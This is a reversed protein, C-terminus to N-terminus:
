ASLRRIRLIIGQSDLKNPFSDFSFEKSRSIDDMQGRDSKGRPFIGTAGARLWPSALDILKPLPAFARATMAEIPQLDVVSLSEIRLCHLSAPAGTARAAERLFACKRQDSEVLHVQAGPTEALQIAIVLGPLGAGSGLDLWVKAGPALPLLQVCDAIHRTWINAFGDSSILNTIKRWRDLLGVYIKLRENTERSVSPLALSM